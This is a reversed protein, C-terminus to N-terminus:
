GKKNPTPSHKQRRPDFDGALVQKLCRRRAAEWREVLGLWFAKDDANRARVALRSCENARRRFLDTSTM